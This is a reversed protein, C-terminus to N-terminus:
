EEQNDPDATPPQIHQAARAIVLVDGDLPQMHTTHWRPADALTTLDLGAIAPRGSGLLVPAIYVHLQDVLGASIFSTILGPGGDLLLHRVGARAIRKLIKHASRSPLHLLQGGPGRM